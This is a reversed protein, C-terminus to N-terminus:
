EKNVPLLPLPTIFWGADRLSNLRLAADPNKLYGFLEDFDTQTDGAIAVLCHDKGFARRRQQKNQDFSPLLLLVDEGLPDLGADALKTRVREADIILRQSIWGITVDQRRLLELQSSFAPNPQMAGELALMKGAPDLDILVAAPAKACQARAGDLAGPNELVASQAEGDTLLAQRLAYSAFGTYASSFTRQRVPPTQTPEPQEPQTTAAESNAALKTGTAAPEAPPIAPPTTPEPTSANNDRNENIVDRSALAGGAVMPIAAILCGQLMLAASILVCARTLQHGSNRPPATRM